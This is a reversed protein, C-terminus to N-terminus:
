VCVTAIVELDSIGCEVNRIGVARRSLQAGYSSGNNSLSPDHIEGATQGDTELETARGQKERQTQRELRIDKVTVSEMHSEIARGIKETEGEAPKDRDKKRIGETRQKAKDSEWETKRGDQM